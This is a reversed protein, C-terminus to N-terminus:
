LFKMPNGVVVVNDPVDKVVVAGAGIIVNNGIHINGIIVVNAGLTVNDGITPILDNRGDIKNGITTCQRCSFNRGISKANIITAFPHNLKVGELISTTPSIFFLNSKQAYWSVLHHFNGIRFYFLTRFYKDNELLWLLNYLFVFVGSTFEKTHKVDLVILSKNKSLVFLFIHPIFFISLLIFRIYKVTKILINKLFEFKMINCLLVIIPTNM